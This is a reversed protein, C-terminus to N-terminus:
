LQIELSDGASLIVPKDLTIVVRGDRLDFRCDAPRGSKAVQLKEPASSCNLTVESIPLRGEAMRIENKQRGDKRSQVLSGWGEPGAFFSKFLDPAHRPTFKLKAKPGDYEWGSLALLLSWSSLPRAYHGGCENECWPNSHQIDGASGTRVRPLGDYRERAGRVLIFGEELLGEYILQAAVQYEIGSWVEDAYRIVKEPRGGRPWTCNILGKEKVGAVARSYNWGTLDSRFNHKFISKLATVVKDRPLIYGLGLQRAWWQGLLQDALCGTLVQGESGDPKKGLLNQEFYEGNWCLEVLKIKGSEFIAHFRDATTTDGMRRAWEEGARLAALYYGSIFTTVGLLKQDYTNDQQDDELYGSPQGRHSKADRAILYEVARRVHPWYEQFFSEDTSNLAERYAKLVCSAHGDTFPREGSPFPPSPVHTRNNVAGDARQQHKFDIRRMERELDPFLRALTQEYGWVHTCTAECCGNSGEYGYVDGNAIRFVVGIHRVTSANAMLCDLLWYPLTSDYFTRVFLETKARWLEFKAAAENMVARADNWQTVYQCGMWVGEGHNYRPYPNQENNVALPYYRNPYHWTLLFPVEVTVGAPVALKAALAGSM